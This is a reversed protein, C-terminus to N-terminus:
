EHKLQGRFVDISSESSELQRLLFNPESYEGLIAPLEELMAMYMMLSARESPHWYDTMMDDEIGWDEADTFDFFTLDYSAFLQPVSERAQILFDFDSRANIEQNTSPAYPPFFGIVHINNAKAKNIIRHLADISDQNLSDGRIIANTNIAVALDTVNLQMPLGDSGKLDPNDLLTANFQFSGDNRWGNGQGFTDIGIARGNNAPETRNIIANMDINYNMLTTQEWMGLALRMTSFNDPEYQINSATDVYQNSFIAQNLGWLVYQPPTDLAILEDFFSELQSPQSWNFISANYFISPDQNFFLSRFQSSRSSGIVIVEPKYAKIAQLKYSPINSLSVTAVILEDRQDQMNVLDNVTVFHGIWYPVGLFVLGFLMIPFLFITLKLIFKQQLTM